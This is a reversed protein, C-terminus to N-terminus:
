FIAASRRFLDFVAGVVMGLAAGFDVLLFFVLAFGVGFAVLQLAVLRLLGAAAPGFEPPGCKPM